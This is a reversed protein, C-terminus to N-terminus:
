KVMCGDAISIKEPITIHINQLGKASADSLVTRWFTTGYLFCPLTNPMACLMSDAAMGIVANNIQGIASSNKMGSMLSPQRPAFSIPDHNPIPVPRPIATTNIRAPIIPNIM